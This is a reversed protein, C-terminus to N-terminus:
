TLTASNPHGRPILSLHVILLQASLYVRLDPMFQKKFVTIDCSFLINIGRDSLAAYFNCISRFLPTLSILSSTYQVLKGHSLQRPGPDELLWSFPDWRLRLHLLRCM